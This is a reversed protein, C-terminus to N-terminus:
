GWLCKAADPHKDHWKKDFITLRSLGGVAERIIDTVEHLSFSDDSTSKLKKITSQVTDIREGRRKSKQLLVKNQKKLKDRERKLAQVLQQVRKLEDEKMSIADNKRRLSVRLAEKEADGGSGSASNTSSRSMARRGRESKNAIALLDEAAGVIPNNANIFYKDGDMDREDLPQHLVAEAESRTLRKGWVKRVSPNNWYQTVVAPTFHLAAVYFNYGSGASTIKNKTENDVHLNRLLSEEFPPWLDNNSKRLHIPPRDFVHGTGHYEKQLDDCKGYGCICKHRNNQDKHRDGKNIHRDGKGLHRDATCNNHNVKGSM